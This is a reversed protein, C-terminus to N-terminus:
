WLKVDVYIKYFASERSEMSNIRSVDVKVVHTDTEKEFDYILKWMRDELEKAKEKIDKIEM